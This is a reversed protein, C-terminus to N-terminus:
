MKAAKPLLVDCQLPTAQDSIAMEIAIGTNKNIISSSLM